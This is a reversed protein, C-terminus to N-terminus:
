HQVLRLVQPTLAVVHPSPSNADEWSEVSDLHGFFSVLTCQLVSFQLRLIEAAARILHTKEEKQKKKCNLFITPSLLEQYSKQTGNLNGDVCAIIHHTSRHLLYLFLCDIWWILWFHKLNKFFNFTLLIGGTIM